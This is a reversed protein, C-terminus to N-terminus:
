EEWLNVVRASNLPAFSREVPLYFGVLNGGTVVLYAEHVHAGEVSFVSDASAYVKGQSVSGVLRWTTDKRIVREYGSDFTVVTDQKVLRREAGLTAEMSQLTEPHRIVEAACGMLFFCLTGVVSMRLVGLWSGIKDMHTDQKESFSFAMM